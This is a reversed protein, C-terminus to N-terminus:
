CQSDSEDSPLVTLRPRASHAEDTSRTSDAARLVSARFSVVLAVVEEPKYRIVCSATKASVPNTRGDTLIVIRRESMFLCIESIEIGASPEGGAAASLDAAQSHTM